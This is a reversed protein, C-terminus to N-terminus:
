LDTNRSHYLYANEFLYLVVNRNCLIIFKTLAVLLHDVPNHISSDFFPLRPQAAGFAHGFMPLLTKAAPRASLLLLAAATHQQTSGSGSSRVPTSYAGVAAGATGGGLAQAFAGALIEAQQKAAAEIYQPNTLRALTAAVNDFQTM